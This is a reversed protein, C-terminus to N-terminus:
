KLYDYYEWERPTFKVTYFKIYSKDVVQRIDEREYLNEFSTQFLEQAYQEKLENRVTKLIDLMKLYYEFHTNDDIRIELLINENSALLQQINSKLNRLLINEENIFIKNNRIKLQNINENNKLTAEALDKILFCGFIEVIFSDLSVLSDLYNLDETKNILECSPFIKENLGLDFFHVDNNLDDYDAAYNIKLVGAKRLENQLKYVYKMEVDVGVALHINLFPSAYELVSNRFTDIFASIESYDLITDSGNNQFVLVPETKEENKPYALFAKITAKKHFVKEVNKLKIFDIDYKNNIANESLNNYYKDLSNSPICVLCFALVINVIFTMCIWKLTNSFYWRLYVWQQLFLTINLLIFVVIFIWKKDNSFYFNPPLNLYFALTVLKFFLVFSMFLVLRYDDFIKTRHRKNLAPHWKIITKKSFISHILFGEAFLISFFAILFKILFSNPQSSYKMKVFFSNTFSQSCVFKLIEVSYVLFLYFMFALGLHVVINLVWQWQPIPLTEISPKLFNKQFAM